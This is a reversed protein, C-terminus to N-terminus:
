DREESIIDNDILQFELKSCNPCEFLMVKAFIYADESLLNGRVEGVGYDM